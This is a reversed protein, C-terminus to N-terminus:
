SFFQDIMFSLEQTVLNKNQIFSRNRRAVLVDIQKNAISLTGTYANNMTFDKHYWEILKNQVTIGECILISPHISELLVTNWQRSKEELDEPIIGTLNKKLQHLEDINKTAFFYCNSKVSTKLLDLRCLGKEFIYVWDKALQYGSYGGCEYFDYYENYDLPQYKKVIEHNHKWYGQGPNIGLFMIGPRYFLESFYIQTGKYCKKVAPYSTAIAEIRSALAEVEHEMQSLKSM